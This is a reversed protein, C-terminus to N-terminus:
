EDKSWIGDKALCKYTGPTIGGKVVYQHILQEIWYLNESLYGYIELMYSEAEDEFARGDPHEATNPIMKDMLGLVMAMDELLHSGLCFMQEKNIGVITDEEMDQLYLFPILKIHDETLTIKMLM